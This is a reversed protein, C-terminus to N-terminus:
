KRVTFPSSTKLLALPRSTSRPGPRPRHILELIITWALTPDEDILDAVAEKAWFCDQDVAEAHKIWEVILLDRDGPERLNLDRELMAEGRDAWSNAGSVSEGMQMDRDDRRCSSGSLGGRDSMFHIGLDVTWSQWNSRGGM